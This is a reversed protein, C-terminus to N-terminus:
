PSLIEAQIDTSAWALASGRLRAVVLQADVGTWIRERRRKWTVQAFTRPTFCDFSQVKKKLEDIYGRHLKGLGHVVSSFGTCTLEAMTV